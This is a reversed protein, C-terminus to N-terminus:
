TARFTVARDDTAAAPVGVTIRRTGPILLATAAGRGPATWAFAGSPVAVRWRHVRGDCRIWAGCESGGTPTCGSESLIVEVAARAAGNGPCCATGSVTAFEDLGCDVGVDPDVTIAARTSPSALAAPAISMEAVVAPAAPHGIRHASRMKKKSSRM